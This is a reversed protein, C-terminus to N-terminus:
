ITTNNDARAHVLARLEDDLACVMGRTESLNHLASGACDVFFNGHKLIVVAAFGVVSGEKAAEALQALAERTEHSIYSDVLHM